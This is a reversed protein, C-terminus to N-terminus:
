AGNVKFRLIVSEPIKESKTVYISGTIVQGPDVIYRHCRKTDADYTCSVEIIETVKENAM